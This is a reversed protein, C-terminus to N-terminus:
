KRRRLIDAAAATAKGARSLVYTKKALSGIFYEHFGPHTSGENPDDDSRCKPSTLQSNMTDSCPRDLGQACDRSHLYKVLRVGQRVM